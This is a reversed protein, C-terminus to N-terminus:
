HSIPIAKILVTGWVPPVYQDTRQFLTYSLSANMIKASVPVNSVEIPLNVTVDPILDVQNNNFFPGSAGVFQPQYQNGQDDVLFTRGGFSVRHVSAAKNTIGFICTTKTGTNRCSRVVFSLEDRTTPPPMPEDTSGTLPNSKSSGGDSPPGASSGSGILDSITKTKPVDSADAAIMKASETDLVKVSLRVHEEFPTLTGTVLAEVGAIKGLTRATAPDILGSKALKHEQMLTNLHTRDIVEFNKADSLLAVSFEEALYRGLPTPRGELDTFDMVAVSRRGSSNIRQAIQSSLIHLDQAACCITITVFLVHVTTFRVSFPILM